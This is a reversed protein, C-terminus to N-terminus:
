EVRSGIQCNRLWEEIALPKSVGYGQLFDVGLDNLKQKIVGDEVWEATVQMGLVHGLHIISSVVAESTKNQLVDRVFSGDIKIHDVQLSKLYGFSSLGTGFDDLSFRCGIARLSDILRQARDINTVAATETIEFCINEPPIGNTSLEDTVFGLFGDDSLTQGSLNISWLHGRFETETHVKSLFQFLNKVVWRDIDPMLYFREAAPMFQGPTSIGGADDRLRLLIEQFHPGSIDEKVSEIKQCYISFDDNLLADQILGVWRLDERRELFLPDRENYVAIRDPNLSQAVDCAIEATYLITKARQTHRDMVAIGTSVTINRRSERWCFPTSAIAKALNGALHQGESSTSGLISIAFHGGGIRSVVNKGIDIQRRLVDTVYSILADGAEHGFADNVIKLHDIEMVLVCYRSGCSHAAALSGSLNRIFENRNMLGTLPDYSLQIVKEAKTAVVELLRRDGTTFDAETEPRIAAIIGYANGLENLVPCAMLKGELSPAVTARLSDKKSNFVLQRLNATVWPCVERELIKLSNRESDPSESEPAYSVAISQRPLIIAAVSSDLHQGCARVLDNLTQECESQEVEGDDTVNYLLNLEEYRLALEEAMADLEGILDRERAVSEAIGFLIQELKKANRSVAKSNPPLVVGILGVLDGSGAHVPVAHVQYSNNSFHSVKEGNELSGNDLLRELLSAASDRTEEPLEDNAWVVSGSENCVLMGTPSPRLSGLQRWFSSYGIKSLSGSASKTM